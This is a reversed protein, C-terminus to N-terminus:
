NRTRRGLLRLELGPLTLFKRKEVNDSGAGLDMCGGIWHSGTKKKEPTFRSLRSDWWEGRVLASIMFIYIQVDVGGYKKM